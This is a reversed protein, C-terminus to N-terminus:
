QGGGGMAPLGVLFVGAWAAYLVLGFILAKWRPMGTAAAYGLGLLVATWVNFLDVVSALRAMQPTLGQLVQGLHSPILTKVQGESMVDSSLAVVGFVVNYLALPLLATTTASFSAVFTISRGILWGAIKVSLAMLLALIPIGFLGKAVGGVLAIRGATTIKSALEQETTGALEGSMSLGRIVSTSADWRLAFALGSFVVAGVLILLPILWRRREIAEPIAASPDFLARASQLVSYM